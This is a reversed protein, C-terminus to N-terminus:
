KLKKKNKNYDKYLKIQIGPAPNWFLAQYKMAFEFEKILGEEWTNFSDYFYFKIHDKYESMEKYKNNVCNEIAYNHYKIEEYINKTLCVDLLINTNNNTNINSSNNYVKFWISSKEKFLDINQKTIETYKNVNEMKNIHDDIKSNKFEGNLNNEKHFYIGSCEQGCVLSDKNITLYYNGCGECKKIYYCKGCYKSTPGTGIFDRKCLSCSCNYSKKNNNIEKFESYSINPLILLKNGDKLDIIEKDERKIFENYLQVKERPSCKQCFIPNLGHKCSLRKSCLIKGANSGYYFYRSCDKSYKCSNFEEDTCKAIYRNRDGVICLDCVERKSNSRIEFEKGCHLCKRHTIEYSCEKCYLSLNGGIFTKGCRICVKPKLSNEYMRKFNTKKYRDEKRKNLCEENSCVTPRIGRRRRLEKGSITITKGCYKCKSEFIPTEYCKESCYYKNSVIKGNENIKPQFHKGCVNCVGFENM